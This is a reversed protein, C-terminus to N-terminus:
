SCFAAFFRFADPTSPCRSMFELLGDRDRLVFGSSHGHHNLGTQRPPRLRPELPRLHSTTGVSQVKGSPVGSLSSSSATGIQSASGQAPQRCCVCVDAAFAFLPATLSTLIRALYENGSHTWIARHFELDLPASQTIPGPTMAEMKEVM